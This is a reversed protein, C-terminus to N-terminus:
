GRYLEKGFLGRHPQGLGKQLFFFFVVCCAHCFFLVLIIYIIFLPVGQSVPIKNAVM